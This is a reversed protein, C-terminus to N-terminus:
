ADAPLRLSAHCDHIVLQAGDGGSIAALRRLTQSAAEGRLVKPQYDLRPDRNQVYVPYVEVDMRGAGFRACVLLSEARSNGSGFAFNGISYFVPRGRYIELPQIIHPHHGVVIDAGCDIFHRAKLRDEPLPEREYPVGWHVTVVVHDVHRKLQGIDREVLDPLDRASGPLDGRASTRRNWYYGLLGIRGSRTEFIAPDHASAEDAGGGIVAIGHKKLTALTERVGDRGCDMIHNNAITMADFGAHRLAVASRPDVKYSFNRTTDMQAAEAAFPGEQNGVTVAARDLIPKVWACVYRPGFRRIRHRMRMGTMVDGVAALDYQVDGRDRLRIELDDPDLLDEDVPVIAEAFRTRIKEAHRDLDAADIAAIASAPVSPKSLLDLVDKSVDIGRGRMATRISDAHRGDCRLADAHLLCAAFVDFGDRLARTKARDPRYPDDWLRRISRTAALVLLDCDTNGSAHLLERLDWLAAALVTASDRTSPKRMARLDAMTTGAALSRPHIVHRDHRRHWCWVHPTGLMSAAWYDSLASATATKTNDQRSPRVLANATFDALYRSVHFGYQRYLHGAIHAANCRYRTGALRPLWGEKTMRSGPALLIEGACPVTMRAPASPQLVARCLYRSDRLPEWPAGDADRATERGDVHGDPALHANVVVRTKPLPKEGLRDLLTDIREAMRTIHYYANVEGFHSASVCAAPDTSARAGTKARRGGGAAPEWIFNGQADPCADGIATWSRSAESVNPEAIWGGNAIEVFRGSLRRGGSPAPDLYDLPVTALEVRGGTFEEESSTWVYVCGETM